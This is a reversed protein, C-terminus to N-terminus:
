LDIGRNALEDVVVDRLEILEDDSISKPNYELYNIIYDITITVTVEM